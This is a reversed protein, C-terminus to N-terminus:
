SLEKYMEYVNFTGIFLPNYVFGKVWKRMGMTYPWEFIYLSPAEEMLIKQLEKYMETRKAVDPTTTATDLIEDVQPNSYYAWNYGYEGQMSTHFMAYLYDIPDAYDPWWYLSFFDPATEPNQAEAAQEAWVLGKLEVKIGINALSVKLVEGASKKPEDGSPYTYVMTREVGDPYGAEAMLQKAKELNTTYYPANPDWGWISSPLAGQMQKGTGHLVTQVAANYDYAYSIAQRVRVDNLPARQTHIFIYLASFSPEIVADIDPNAKLELLDPITMAYSIDVDGKELLLRQTTTEKVERVIIREIHKGAWGQWYADNKVLTVHDHHMWELLKYPGTGVMHDYAWKEAWPDDSTAQAQFATPSVIYFGWGAAIRHLFDTYVDTLTFQVTYPDVAKVADVPGVIFWSPGKGISKLREFSYVFADANLPTGDQFMVGQRLHFTYTMGDTSVEWTEALGPVFETVSGPKYDLLKEYVARVIRMADTSYQVAPDLTIPEGDDAGIILVKEKESIEVTKSYYSYGFYVAIVIIAVLVVTIVIKKPFPM